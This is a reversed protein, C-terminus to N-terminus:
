HSLDTAETNATASVPGRLESVALRLYTLSVPNPKNPPPPSLCLLVAPTTRQGGCAHVGMCMWGHTYGCVGVCVHGYLVCLCVHMFFSDYLLFIKMNM